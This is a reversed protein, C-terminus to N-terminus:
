YSVIVIVIWRGSDHGIPRNKLIKGQFSGKLISVGASKSSGYTIIHRTTQMLLMYCQLHSVFKRIKTQMEVTTIALYLM